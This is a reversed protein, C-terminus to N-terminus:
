ACAETNAAVWHADKMQAVPKVWVMARGDRTSAYRQIVRAVSGTKTNRILEAAKTM